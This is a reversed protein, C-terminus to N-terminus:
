LPLGHLPIPENGQELLLDITEGHKDVIRVGDQITTANTHRALLAARMEDLDRWGGGLVRTTVGRRVVLM